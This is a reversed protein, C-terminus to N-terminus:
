PALPRRFRHGVHGSGRAGRHMSAELWVPQYNSTLSARCLQSTFGDYSERVELQRCVSMDSPICGMRRSLSHKARNADNSICNWVLYSKAALEHRCRVPYASSERASLPRHVQWSGSRSLRISCWVALPLLECSPGFRIVRCTIPCTGPQM